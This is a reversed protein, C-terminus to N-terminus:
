VKKVQDDLKGQRGSQREVQRVVELKTIQKRIAEIGDQNGIEQQLHQLELTQAAKLAQEVKVIPLDEVEEDLEFTPGQTFENLVDQDLDGVDIEASEEAPNM